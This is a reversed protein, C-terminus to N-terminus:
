IKVYDTQKVISKKAVSKCLVPLMLEIFYLQTLLFVCNQSHSLSLRAAFRLQFFTDPCARKLASILICLSFFCTANGALTLM